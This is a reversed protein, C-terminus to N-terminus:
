TPETETPETEAVQDNEAATESIETIRDLAIPEGDVIACVAGGDYTVGTVVGTVSYTTGDEADRYGTVTKGILYSSDVLATDTDLLGPDFVQVIDDVKVAAQGIVAYYTGSENVISDITGYFYNTTGTNPDPVEAYAYKGVLSYAQMSSMGASIEQMEELSSMQALQTVFETDTQPNLPDQYQMQAALLKLFTESGVSLNSNAPESATSKSISSAAITADAIQTTSM